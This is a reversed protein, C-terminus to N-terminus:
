TTTTRTRVTAQVGHHQWYTTQLTGPQSVDVLWWESGRLLQVLRDLAQDLADSASANDHEDDLEVLLVIGFSVLLEGAYTQGELDEQIFDEAPQVIACPPLPEEPVHGYVIAAVPAPEPAGTDALLERLQDRLEAIM